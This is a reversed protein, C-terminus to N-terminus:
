KRPRKKGRSSKASPTKKRAPKRAAPTKVPAHIERLAPAAEREDKRTAWWAGAVAIIVGAITGLTQSLGFGTRNGVGSSDAFVSVLFVVVGVVIAVIGLTKQNM